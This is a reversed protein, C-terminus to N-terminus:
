KAQELVDFDVTRIGRKGTGWTVAEVTLCVRDGIKCQAKDLQRNISIVATGKGMWELATEIGEEQWFDRLAEANDAEVGVDAGITKVVKGTAAFQAM